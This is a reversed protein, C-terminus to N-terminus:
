TSTPVLKLYKKLIEVQGDSVPFELNGVSFFNVKSGESEADRSYFWEEYVKNRGDEYSTESTLCSTTFPEDNNKILILSDYPGDSYANRRLLVM